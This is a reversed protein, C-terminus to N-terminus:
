ICGWYIDLLSIAFVKEESFELKIYVIYMYTAKKSFVMYIYFPKLLVLM